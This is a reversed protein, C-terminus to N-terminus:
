AGGHGVAAAIRPRLARGEAAAVGGGGDGRAGPGGPHGDARAAGGGGVGLAGGRGRAGRSAKGAAGGAAGACVRGVRRQSRFVLPAVGGARVSSRYVLREVRARAIAGGGRGAGGGARPDLAAALGRAGSPRGAGGPAGGVRAVFPHVRRSLFRQRFSFLCLRAAPEHRRGVDSLRSSSALRM